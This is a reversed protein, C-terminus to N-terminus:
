YPDYDEVFELDASQREGMSGTLDAIKAKFAETRDAYERGARRLIAAQVYESVAVHHEQPLRPVSAIMYGKTSVTAPLWTGWFTLTTNTDFSKIPPYVATASVWDGGSLQSVVKPALATTSPILEAPTSLGAIVWQSGTGVVAALGQTIAFTGTTYIFLRPTRAIYSIEVDLAKDPAQAIRLTRDGVVDWYIPSVAADSNSFRQLDQFLPEVIKLHEFRRAEEGSALCRLGRIEIIDPPLIYDRVGPTLKLSSPAYDFGEWRFSTDTSSRTILFYDEDLARIRAEVADKGDNAWTMLEELTLLYPTTRDLTIADCEYLAKRLIQAINM